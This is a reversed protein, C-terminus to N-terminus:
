FICYTEVWIQNPRKTLFLLFRNLTFRTFLFARILICGLLWSILHLCSNLILLSTKSRMLWFITMITYYFYCQDPVEFIQSQTRTEVGLLQQCMKLWILNDNYSPHHYRDQSDSLSIHHTFTSQLGRLVRCSYTRHYYWAFCNLGKSLAKCIVLHHLRQHVSIQYILCNIKVLLWLQWYRKKGM